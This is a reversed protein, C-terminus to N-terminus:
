ESKTKNEARRLLSQLLAPRTVRARYRRGTRRMIREETATRSALDVVYKRSGAGQLTVTQM